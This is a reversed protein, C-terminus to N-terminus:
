AAMAVLSSRDCFIKSLDVISGDSSHNTQAPAAKEGRGGDHGHRPHAHRPAFHQQGPQSQQQADHGRDDHALVDREADELELVAVVVRRRPDRRADGDGRRGAAQQADAQQRRRRVGHAPAPGEAGHLEAPDEVARRPARVRTDARRARPLVAARTPAHQASAGFERRRKSPWPAADSSPLGQDSSASLKAARASVFSSPASALSVASSKAKTSDM